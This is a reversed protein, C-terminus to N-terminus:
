IALGAGIDDVIARCGSVMAMGDVQVYRRREVAARWRGVAVPRDVGRIGTQRSRLDKMRTLRM